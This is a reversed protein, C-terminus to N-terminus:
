CLFGVATNDILCAPQQFLGFSEVSPSGFVPSVLLAPQGRAFKNTMVPADPEPLDDIM